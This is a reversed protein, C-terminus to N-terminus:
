LRGARRDVPSEVRVANLSRM